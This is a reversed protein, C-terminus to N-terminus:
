DALFSFDSLSCTIQGVKSRGLGGEIISWISYMGLKAASEQGRVRVEVDHDGSWPAVVLFLSITEGSRLTHAGNYPPNYFHLTVKTMADEGMPANLTPATTTPGSFSFNQSGSINAGSVQLTVYDMAIDNKLDNILNLRVLSYLNRFYLTGTKKDMRAAMPASIRQFGDTVSYYQNYPVIATGGTCSKGSGNLTSSTPYIAAYGNESIVTELVGDYVKRNVGNVKVIDGDNWRVVNLTDAVLKQHGNTTEFAVPLRVTKGDDEKSCSALGLMLVAVLLLSTARRPEAVIVNSKIKM